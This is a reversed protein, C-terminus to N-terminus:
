KKIGGKSLAIANNHIEEIRIAGDPRCFILHRRAAAMLVGNALPFIRDKQPAYM